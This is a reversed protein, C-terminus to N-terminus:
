FLLGWTHETNGVVSGLKEKSIVKDGDRLEFEELVTPYENYFLKTNFSALLPQKFDWLARSYARLKMRLTRNKEKAVVTFLPLGNEVTKKVSVKSFTYCEKDPEYFFKLTGYIPIGGRNFFSEEKDTRRFCPIGIYPVFYEIYSGNSSHFMGWYWPMSPVKMRVKQFHATGSVKRKKSGEVIEGEFKTGYIKFVDYGFRGIYKDAKRRGESMFDTWDKINFRFKTKGNNIAVSSNKGGKFFISRDLNTIINKDLYLDSDELIMPMIMKEGDFYWAAVMGGFKFAKGDRQLGKRRWLYDNVFIKECEKTSWLIMLQESKEPTKGPIFFLWWWWDWGVRNASNGIDVNWIDDDIPRM